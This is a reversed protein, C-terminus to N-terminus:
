DLFFIVLNRNKLSLGYFEIKGWFYKHATELFLFKLIEKTCGKKKQLFLSFIIMTNFCYHYVKTTRTHHRFLEVKCTLHPWSFNCSPFTPSAFNRPSTFLGTVWSNSISKWYLIVKRQAVSNSKLNDLSVSIGYFLNNTGELLSPPSVGM